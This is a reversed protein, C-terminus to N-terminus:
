EERLEALVALALRDRVDDRDYYGKAIRRRAMEVKSLELVRGSEPAPSAARPAAKTSREGTRRRANPM